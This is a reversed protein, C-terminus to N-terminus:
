KKNLITTIQQTFDPNSHAIYDVFGEVALKGMFAAKCLGIKKAEKCTCYCDCQFCIHKAYYKDAIKEIESKKKAM